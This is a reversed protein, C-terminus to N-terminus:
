SVGDARQILDPSVWIDASAKLSEIMNTYMRTKVKGSETARFAELGKEADEKSPLVRKVLRYVYYVGQSGAISDAVPKADTLTFADRKVQASSFLDESGPASKSVEATRKKEIANEKAIADFLAGVDDKEGRAQIKKLAAAATTRAMDNQLQAQFDAVVKDKVDALEPIYADKVELMSVVYAQDNALVFESDGASYSIMKAALGPADPIGENRSLFHDLVIAKKGKSAAFEQLTKGSSSVERFANVFGDAEARAYEPAVSNRFEQDLQAKVAEFPKLTAEKIDEVYYLTYKDPTTVIQSVEGKQLRDVTGRIEKNLDALKKWGLDGGKAASEKDESNNKALDAFSEGQEVRIRLLDIADRKEKDKNSNPEQTDNGSVIKELESKKVQPRNFVLERLQVMKPETFEREKRAYLDKLEDESVSVKHVFDASPFHVYAFRIGKAKRYIEANSQYYQKLKEENSADVKSAFASAAFPLYEFESKINETEYASLLERDTPQAVDSFLENIQRMMIDDRFNEEFEAASMGQAQLFREYSEKSMGAKQFYPLQSLQQEVQQYGVALNLKSTLKGVLVEEMLADITRQELNLLKKFSAFNAGFQRGYIEVLSQYRRAYDRRSVKVDDIKIAVDSAGSKMSTNVDLGFSVMLVVAFGLLFIATLSKKNKRFTNLM